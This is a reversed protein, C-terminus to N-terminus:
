FFKYLQLKLQIFENVKHLKFSNVLDHFNQKTIPFKVEVGNYSPEVLIEPKSKKLLSLM